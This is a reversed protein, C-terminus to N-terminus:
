GDEPDVRGAPVAVTGTLRAVLERDVEFQLGHDGPYSATHLVRQLRIPEPIGEPFADCTWQGRRAAERHFHRCITCLHQGIM